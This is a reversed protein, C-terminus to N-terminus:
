EFTDENEEKKLLYYGPHDFIMEKVETTSEMTKKKGKSVYRKDSEPFPIMNPFPDPWGISEM